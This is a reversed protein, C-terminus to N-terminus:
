DSEEDSDSGEEGEEEGEEGEEGGEGEEGEEGSDDEEEYEEDGDGDEGGEDSEEEESEEEEGGEEGGEEEEGELDNLHVGRAMAARAKATDKSIEHLYLLGLTYCEAEDLERASAVDDVPDVARATKVHLEFSRMLHTRLERVLDRLRRAKMQMTEYASALAPHEDLLYQTMVTDREVEAAPAVLKGAHDVEAGHTYTPATPHPFHSALAGDDLLAVCGFLNIWHPDPAGRFTLVRRNRVNGSRLEIGTLPVVTIREKRDAKRKAGRSRKRPRKRSAGRADGGDAEEEECAEDDGDEDEEEEEAEEDGEKDSDDADSHITYRAKDGGTANTRLAGGTASRLPALHEDELALLEHRVGEFELIIRQAESRADIMRARGTSLPCSPDDPAHIYTCRLVFSLSTVDRGFVAHVIQLERRPFHAADTQFTGLRLWPVGGEDLHVSEADDPGDLKDLKLGQFVAGLTEWSNCVNYRSRNQDILVRENWFDTRGARPVRGLARLLSRLRLVFRQPREFEEPRRLLHRLIRRLQTPSCDHVGGAPYPVDEEADPALM